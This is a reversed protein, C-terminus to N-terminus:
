CPSTGKTMDRAIRELAAATTTPDSWDFALPRPYRQALIILSLPFNPAAQAAMQKAAHFVESLEGYRRVLAASPESGREVTRQYRRVDPHSWYAENVHELGDVVRQEASSMGGYWDTEMHYRWKM